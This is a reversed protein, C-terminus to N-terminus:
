VVTVVRVLKLNIKIKCVYCFKVHFNSNFDYCLYVSLFKPRQLTVITLTLKPENGTAIYRLLLLLCNRSRVQEEKEM